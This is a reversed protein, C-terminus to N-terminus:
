QSGDDDDIVEVEPGRDETFQGGEPIMNYRGNEVIKVDVSYMAHLLVPGEMDESGEIEVRTSATASCDGRHKDRDIFIVHPRHDASAPLGYLLQLGELEAVDMRVRVEGNVTVKVGQITQQRLQSTDGGNSKNEVSASFYLVSPVSGKLCFRAFRKGGERDIHKEDVSFMVSRTARFGDYGSLPSKATSYRPEKHMPPFASLVKGGIEYAGTYLSLDSSVPREVKKPHYSYGLLSPAEPLQWACEVVVEVKSRIPIEPCGLYLLEQGGGMTLPVVITKSAPQFRPLMYSAPTHAAFPPLAIRNVENRATLMCQSTGGCTGATDVFCQRDLINGDVRIEVSRIWRDLCSVDEERVGRPLMLSLNSVFHVTDTKKRPVISACRFNLNDEDDLLPLKDTLCFTWRERRVEDDPRTKCRIRGYTKCFDNLSLSGNAVPDDITRKKLLCDTERDQQERKTVIDQM